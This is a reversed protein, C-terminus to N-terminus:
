RQLHKHLQLQRLEPKKQLDRENLGALKIATPVDAELEILYRVRQHSPHEQQLEWVLERTELSSADHFPQNLQGM